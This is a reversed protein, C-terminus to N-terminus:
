QIEAYNGGMDKCGDFTYGFFAIDEKFYEGVMKRTKDTYYDRYDRHGSGNIKPLAGEIGLRDCVRAFDRELTEFRGLFDVMLRGERDTLMPKQFKAAGRPYPRPTNIVWELYEGFGNMASVTEYRVHTPDKLIFHYMSVQWDWPNRVFAFKYCSNFVEPTVEKKVDRASAHYLSYRWIDYLPNPRGDITKAPRKIKFKEPESCHPELIKRISMGAAKAVHIFISKRSRSILM